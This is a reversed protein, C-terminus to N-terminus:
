EEPQAIGLGPEHPFGGELTTRENDLNRNNAREANFAPGYRAELKRDNQKINEDHSQSVMNLGLTRYWNLDGFEEQLNVEDFETGNAVKDLLTELLEGAETAVGIIAHVLNRTKYDTGGNIPTIAPQRNSKGYFLAKKIEDLYRLQRIADQLIFILVERDVLRYHWEQSCRTLVNRTYEEHDM